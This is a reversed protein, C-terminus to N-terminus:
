RYHRRGGSQLGRRQELQDARRVPRRIRESTRGALIKIAATWAPDDAESFLLITGPDATITVPETLVLPAPLNYTGATLHVTGYQNALINLDDGPHAVVSTAAISAARLGPDAGGGAFTAVLNTGDDLVLRLTM